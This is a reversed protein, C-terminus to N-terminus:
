MMRSWTEPRKLQVTRAVIGGMSHALMRVPKGTDKRALLAADVADALRDAEEEVPRRWDFGFPIVDHDGSLFVALDDYFMGIPGDPQVADDADYALRSFGNVLRWGLWIRDDGAKLNSGLIGPLVFVAPLDAAAAPSRQVLAARVGAPSTGGWSLLGIVHFGAPADRVLADVVAAATESNRFYNFHSVKGGQDLVFTSDSVRPSGGYMSRTQVVLDNDTWYFADSLLTKVWTVVSDGELDGAVVRLDGAITTQSGHLWQVLPSDPVQAALGPLSEPDARRRAVEGLFALLQPVVPLGALELAWKVVSVYADLRKSALLTGRAPCAVRVVREVSLRKASVIAALRRLEERQAAHGEASFPAFADNPQSSVRALVEAVLGGRSHTLLHLRTGPSVAEALTIANAIPSAGLTPHDLGYVRGGYASFLRRVLQPHDTWLKGFTGSTESFTGHVLVLSHSGSATVAAPSQGKLSTLKDANLRYVGPDVRSDFQEVVQSAVFDAAKDTVLGTIVDVAQVLVDGLFGRTAGRAPDAEELRWQLRVPIRVEGPRPARDVAGRERAPEQQGMLLERAHEPHLWLAPGGAIHVVVADEGPVASMRVGGDQAARRSTLLVSEKLTGIAPASVAAPGGRAAGERRVGSAVFTIPDAM